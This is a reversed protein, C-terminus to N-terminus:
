LGGSLLFPFGDSQRSARLDRDKEFTFIRERDDAVSFSVHNTKMGVCQSTTGNLCIHAQRIWSSLDPRLSPDTMM